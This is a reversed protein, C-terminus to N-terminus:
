FVGITRLTIYFPYKEFVVTPPIPDTSIGQAPTDHGNSPLFDQPRIGIDMDPLFVSDHSFYRGTCIGQGLM